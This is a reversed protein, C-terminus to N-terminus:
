NVTGDIYATVQESIQSFTLNSMELVYVVPTINFMGPNTENEAAYSILWRENGYVVVRDVTGLVQSGSSNRLFVQQDSYTTAQPWVISSQIGYDIAASANNVFGTLNMQLAGSTSTASELGSCAIYVYSTTNILEDQPTLTCTHTYGGTSSCDRSSAMTTYNWNRDAIRCYASASTTIAFTPTTDESGYPSTTDGSPPNCSTCNIATLTPANLCETDCWTINTLQYQTMTIGSIKIYRLNTGTPFTKNAFNTGNRYFQATGASTNIKISFNQAGTIRAADAAAPCNTGEAFARYVTTAQNCSGTELGVMYNSSSPNDGTSTNSFGFNFNGGPWAVGDDKLIFQLEYQGSAAALSTNAITYYASGDTRTLYGSSYGYASTGGAWNTTLTGNAYDVFIRDGAAAYAGSVGVLLIFLFISVRSNM